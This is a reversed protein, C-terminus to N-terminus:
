TENMIGSRACLLCARRPRKASTFVSAELERRVIAILVLGDSVSAHLVHACCKWDSKYSITGVMASVDFMIFLVFNCEIPISENQTFLNSFQVSIPPMEPKQDPM